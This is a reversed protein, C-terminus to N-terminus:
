PRDIITYCSGFRLVQLAVKYCVTCSALYHIQNRPNLSVDRDSTSVNSFTIVVVVVVRLAMLSDWHGSALLTPANLLPWVALRFEQWEKCIIDVCRIYDM